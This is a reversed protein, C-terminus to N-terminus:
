TGCKGTPDPPLNFDEKKALAPNAHQVEYSTIASPWIHLNQVYIAQSPTNAWSPASYFTQPADRAGSPLTFPSPLTRQFAQKGNLYLTFTREEVVVTVRFPTNLPINKLPATSYSTPTGNTSSVFTCVLDNTETLYLGMTAAQSLYDQLNQTDQITIAFPGTGTAPPQFSKLLIIRRNAAQTEVGRVYVDVSFSYNKVFKSTDMAQLSSSALADQLAPPQSKNTWFVKDDQTGPVTLIGKAGPRFVFVPTVTYHVFVAVLFLLFVYIFLYFLVSLFYNGREPTLQLAVKTVSTTAFNKAATPAAKFAQGLIEAATSARANAQAAASM